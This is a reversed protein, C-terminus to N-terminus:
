ELLDDDDCRAYEDGEAGLLRHLFHALMAHGGFRAAAHAGFDIRVEHKQALSCCALAADITPLLFSKASIVVDEIKEIM